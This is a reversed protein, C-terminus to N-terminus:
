RLAFTVSVTAITEQRGPVIPTSAEAAGMARDYYPVPAAGSEVMTTIEGLTRGAAKALIGARERADAVARSLAERYLRAADSSSM